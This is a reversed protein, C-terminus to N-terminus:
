PGWGADVLHRRLAQKGRAYHQRATGVSVGAVEAAQEVTLEHFFVLTLVERQRRPLTGLAAVLARRRRAEEVMAEASPGPPPEPPEMEGPEFLWERLFRRRRLDAAGRRIVAFLWTRLSSRGDFRARGDLIKLYTTQLVDEADSRRRDCCHLAWAWADRHLEALVQRLAAPETDPLAATMAANTASARRGYSLPKRTPLTRRALPLALELDVPATCQLGARTAPWHARGRM